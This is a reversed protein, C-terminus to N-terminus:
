RHRIRHPTGSFVPFPDPLIDSSAESFSRLSVTLLLVFHIANLNGCLVYEGVPAPLAFKFSVAADLFKVPLIRAKRLQVAPDFYLIVKRM